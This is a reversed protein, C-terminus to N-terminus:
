AVVGDLGFVFGGGLSLLRDLGWFARRKAVGLLGVAVNRRPHRLRPVRKKYATTSAAAVKGQRTETMYIHKM